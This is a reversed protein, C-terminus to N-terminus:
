LSVLLYDFVQKLYEIKKIKLQEEYYNNFELVIKNPTIKKLIYPGTGIDKGNKDLKFISYRTGSLEYFIDRFPKIFKLVLTKENPTSIGKIDGVTKYEDYGELAYLVDLTAQNKYIPKKNLAALLSKKYVISTIPTGDSFKKDNNIIFKVLKRDPSIEWDKAIGATYSGFDTDKILPEFCNELIIDGLATSQMAPELVGWQGSVAYKLVEKEM